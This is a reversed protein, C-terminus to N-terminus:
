PGALSICTDFKIKYGGGGVEFICMAENSNSIIGLVQPYLVVSKKGIYAHRLTNQLFFHKINKKRASNAFGWQHTKPHQTRKSTDAADPRFLNLPFRFVAVGRTTEYDM